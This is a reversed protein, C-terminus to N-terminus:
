ASTSGRAAAHRASSPSRRWWTPSSMEGPKLLLLPIFVRRASLFVDCRRNADRAVGARGCRRRRACRCRRAGAPARAPLGRRGPAGLSLLHCRPRPRGHGGGSSRRTARGRGARDESAARADIGIGLRPVAADFSHRWHGQPNAEVGTVAARPRPIPRRKRTFWSALPAPPRESMRPRAARRPYARGAARSPGRKCMRPEGPPMHVDRVERPCCPSPGAASSETRASQASIEEEQVPTAPGRWAGPAGDSGAGRRWARPRPPSWAPRASRPGRGLRTHGCPESRRSGTRIGCPTM